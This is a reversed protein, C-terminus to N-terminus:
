INTNNRRNNKRNNDLRTLNVNLNGNTSFQYAIIGSLKDIAKGTLTVNEKSASSTNATLSNMIPLEKDITTITTSAM